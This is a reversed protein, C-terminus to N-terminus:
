GSGAPIPSEKGTDDAESADIEMNETDKILNRLAELAVEMQSNDPERTTLYQLCLGPLALIKLPKFRAQSTLRILEYSIAAVLPLLAIRILFRQWLGPWGFFSFLLISVIMVILMFSTGCRPHRISFGAANEVSLSKGAEYCYIAKHEAGHYAFFRQIEGWRSILFIYAIFIFIRVLGELLNSFIPHMSPVYNALFTPLLFFLGVALILAVAITLATHVPHMEEGEEELVSATSINLAKIGVSLAEVFAVVGRILPWRLFPYRRTLTSIEERHISIDGQSKRCAVVMENRNRLMVGEMVAQGGLWPQSSM